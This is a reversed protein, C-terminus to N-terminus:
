AVDIAIALTQYTTGSAVELRLTKTDGNVQIEKTFLDGSFHTGQTKTAIFGAEVLKTEYLKIQELGSTGILRYEIGYYKEKTEEGDGDVGDSYYLGAVSQRGGVVPILNLNDKGGILEELGILAKSYGELLTSLKVDSCDTKIEISDAINSENLFTYKIEEINTSKDFGIEFLVSDDDFTVNMSTVALGEGSFNYTKTKLFNARGDYVYKNDDTKNFFISSMDFSPLLPTISSNVVSGYAYYDNGLKNAQQIQNNGVNKYLFNMKSTSTESELILSSGDTKGSYKSEVTKNSNEDISYTTDVFSYKNNKLKSFVQNLEEKEEGTKTYEAQKFEFDDGPIVQGQIELETNSFSGTIPNFVIDVDFGDNDKNYIFSFEKITRTYEHLFQTALLPLYTKVYDDEVDLTYTGEDDLYNDKEFYTFMNQYGSDSWELNKGNITYPYYDIKNSIDLMPMSVLPTLVEPDYSYFYEVYVSNRDAEQNQKSDYRIFEYGNDKVGIDLCYNSYGDSTLTTATTKFRYGYAMDSLLKDFKDDITETKKTSSIDTKKDSTSSITSNSISEKGCSAVSGLLLILAILKFKKM